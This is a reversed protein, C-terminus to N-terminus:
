WSRRRPSRAEAPLPPLHRLPERCLDACAAALRDLHDLTAQLAVPTDGPQASVANVIEAFHPPRQPLTEVLAVSGKENMCYRENLAFLVQVLCAICRFLCGGVYAVDCRAAPKRATMLAFGAEWLHREIVVRKLLPPYVMTDAKIALVAGGPDRLIRAYFVEAMYMHNHFGHPHGPQYDCTHLGRRCDAITRRVHDLDRYLWDVRQGDVQLWAGGNIWPGWEGPATVADPSHRDDLEDALARLADVDPPQDPHYYLGVDIDADARANGRARSGGLVIAAVGRVASLRDAIRAILQTTRAPSEIDSM